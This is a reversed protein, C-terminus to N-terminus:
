EEFHLKYLMNSIKGVVEWERVDLKNSLEQMKYSVDNFSQNCLLKANDDITKELLIQLDYAELQLKLYEHIPLM